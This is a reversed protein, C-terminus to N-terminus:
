EVTAFAQVRTQHLIGVMFFLDLKRCGHALAGTITAEIAENSCLFKGNV